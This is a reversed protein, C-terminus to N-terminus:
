REVVPHAFFTNMVFTIEGELPFIDQGALSPGNGIVFCRNGAHAERFRSNRQLLKREEATLPTTYDPVIREARKLLSTGTRALGKRVARRFLEGVGKERGTKLIRSESESM